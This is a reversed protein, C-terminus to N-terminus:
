VLYDPGNNVCLSWVDEPKQYLHGAYQRRWLEAQLSDVLRLHFEDNPNKGVHQMYLDLLTTIDSGSLKAYKSNTM